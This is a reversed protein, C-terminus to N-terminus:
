NEAGNAVTEEREATEVSLYVCRLLLICTNDDDDAMKKYINLRTSTRRRTVRNLALAAGRPATGYLGVNNRNSGLSRQCQGITHTHAVIMARM